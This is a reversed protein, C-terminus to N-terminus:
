QKVFKFTKKDPGSTVTVLYIGAGLNEAPLKIQPSNAFAKQWLIKGSIDSIIVGIDKRSGKILLSSSGQAPNPYLRVDFSTNTEQASIERSNAKSLTFVPACLDSVFLENGYKRSFAGVFLKNVSATLVYFGSLGAVVEDPVQNTRPRTGDSLWLTNPYVGDNIFFLRGGASCFNTLYSSGDATIDKVLKTSPSTGNTTWLETGHVGDDATFFLEGNVDTLNGPYSDSDPNIDKVLKTGAKTGDTKWLEAGLRDFDTANFYLINNSVCFFQMGPNSNFDYYAPTINALKTTGNETGDTKWFSYNLGGDTAGFYLANKYTFLSYPDSGNAGVFIDKVMKTGAPEGNTKWLEFGHVNDGAVFFATNGITKIYANYNLNPSLLYTGAETGDSRWLQYENTRTALVYLPLGDDLINFNTIYFDARNIEPVIKKLGATTGDTQYISTGGTFTSGPNDAIFYNVGNKYIFSNPDSTLADAAINNLLQTGASTGDSKYLEAGLQPTFASFVVGKGSPAIGKYTHGADSGNTTTTNIDRLLSTGSGNGDSAWLENGTTNDGASFLLEGNCITLNNPMSSAIGPNIDRVLVTGENTGNSKWLENGYVPDAKGFYLTGNFNFFNYISEGQLFVKVPETNDTGAKTMWLEEQWPYTNSTVRFFIADNVLCMEIPVIFDNSEAPELDRVLEVGNGSSADYKYLGSGEANTYGAIYLVNNRILFPTNDNGSLYDPQMFVDNFGAAQATGAETGDSSWLRRGDGTNNISFYLMDNYATLQAPGPDGSPSGGLLRVMYTGASTGDSRFLQFGLFNHYAIFYAIDNVAVLQSILYLNGAQEVDTIFSTGAQTGNTKWLQNNYSVLSSATFLISGNVNVFQGPNSGNTGPNIDVLLHTGSATGDSVWPENGNEFTSASFYLLGEFAVIGYIESTAEGPNIDKVLYTGAATGDTRWLERGHIGDDASFYSINNVVAFSNPANIPYNSPYSEALTNIDKTLNFCYANNIDSSLSEAAANKETPSSYQVNKHGANFRIVKRSVPDFTTYPLDSMKKGPAKLMTADRADLLPQPLKREFSMQNSSNPKPYIPKQGNLITAPYIFIVLLGFFTGSKM